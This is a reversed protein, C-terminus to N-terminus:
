LATSVLDSGLATSVVLFPMIVIGFPLVLHLVFIFTFPIVLLVSFIGGFWVWAGRVVLGILVGVNSDDQYLPKGFNQAMPLTNTYQLLFVFRQVLKEAQERCHVLYWWSFFNFIYDRIFM